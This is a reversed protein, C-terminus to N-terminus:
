AAETLKQAFTLATGLAILILGALVVPYGPDTVAQLGTTPVTKLVARFSGIDAGGEDVRLVSLGPVGTVRVVARRNEDVTMFFCEIGGAGDTEGRSIRHAAGTADTLELEYDAGYSAQYITLGGVRLPRNVSIREGIRAATGESALDVVSTWGSPRGDDYREDIFEALTLREGNPLEVSDGVRLTVSGEKRESFSYLSGLILVLLGAHLIDPGHRRKTKKKFERGLRDASCALLNVFFAFVPLLFLLSTFYRGLGTEVILMAALKPYLEFYKKSDLGQPILTALVSGATLCVILGIALKISKIRRWIERM